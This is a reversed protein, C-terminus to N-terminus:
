GMKEIGSWNAFLGLGLGGGLWRMVVRGRNFNMLEIETLNYIFMKSAKKM